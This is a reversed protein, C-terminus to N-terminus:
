KPQKKKRAGRGNIVIPKWSHSAKVLQWEHDLDAQTYFADTMYIVAYFTRWDPHGTYGHMDAYIGDLVSKAESSSDVFKYETAAMLSPVGIDPKYTKLSKPIPIERVVGPFCTELVTRVANRVDKESAPELNFNAIIKATNGLVTELVGLGTLARGHTMTVLSRYYAEARALPASHWSQGDPELAISDFGEVRGEARLEALDICLRPLRLREALILTDRYAKEVQFALVHRAEDLAEAHEGEDINRPTNAEQLRGLQAVAAQGAAFTDAISAALLQEELDM